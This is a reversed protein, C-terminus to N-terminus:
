GPKEIVLRTKPSLHRTPPYLAWIGEKTIQHNSLLAVLEGSALYPAVYYDPLQIIGLSKLAADILAVGSNCRMKPQVKVIENKGNM